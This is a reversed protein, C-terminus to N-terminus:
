AASDPDPVPRCPGTLRALDRRQEAALRSRLDAVVVPDDTRGVVRATSGDLEILAAVTRTAM